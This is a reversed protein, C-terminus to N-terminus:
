SEIWDSLIAAKATEQLVKHFQKFISTTFHKNCISKPNFINLERKFAENDYTFSFVKICDDFHFYGEIRAKGTGPTSCMISSTKKIEIRKAGLNQTSKTMLENQSKLIRALNDKRAQLPNTM